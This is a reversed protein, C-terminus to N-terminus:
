FTTIGTKEPLTALLINAYQKWTFNDPKEVYRRGTINGSEKVYLAGSNVGSVRNILRYWTEPELIHYLWLGKKQDDGYPQCLRQESLPVGAQSMKSYIGNSPLHKNKGLYVWIDETKWDYLPYVNYLDGSVKTTWKYGGKMLNDKRSVIARYRHLSEDARIGIFAATSKGGSYWEGFLIMFEEFEMKPVYFPYQSTDVAQSPKDRVWEEEKGAEWACWKPEFNSVANRLLLEGCFWHLDIHEQYMSVCSNIHNITDEYQAELDIILLGVKVGRSIAEEMVLHLMVTSDKGGSFSIYIKEFMDFTKSIREKSASLVNQDIYKKM